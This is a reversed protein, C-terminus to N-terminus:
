SEEGLWQGFDGDHKTYGAPAGFQEDGDNKQMGSLDQALGFDSVMLHSRAATLFAYFAPTCNEQTLQDVHYERWYTRKQPELDDPEEAAVLLFGNMVLLDGVPRRFHLCGLPTLQGPHRTIGTEELLERLAAQEPM